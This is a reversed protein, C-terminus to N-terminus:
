ILDGEALPIFIVRMLAPHSRQLEEKAEQKLDGDIEIVMAAKGGRGQRYLHMTAINVDHKALLGTVAALVGPRDVHFTVLAALDGKLSLRFGDIEQLEVVGGGLSAGVVEMTRDNGYLVFRVSNPHAGDINEAFFRYEMGRERAINLADKIREDHPLFGLLGGVLAKDTGHGWYTAAFSGRLYIDVKSVEDNWVRRALRGLKAAGATHSSSPGVMVPGIIDSLM